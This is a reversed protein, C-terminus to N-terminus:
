CRLGVRSRRWDPRGRSRRAHWGTWRSSRSRARGPSPTTTSGPLCDCSRHRQRTPPTSNPSPRSRASRLSGGVPPTGARRTPTASRRARPSRGPTPWRSCSGHDRRGGPQAQGDGASGSRPRFGGAAAPHRHRRDPRGVPRVGVPRRRDFLHRRPGQGRVAPRGPSGGGVAPRGAPPGRRHVALARIRRGLAGDRTSAVPRDRRRRSGRRRRYGRGRPGRATPHPGGAHTTDSFALDAAALLAEDGASSSLFAVDDPSFRYAM